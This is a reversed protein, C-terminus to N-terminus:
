AAKIAALAAAAVEDPTQTADIRIIRADEAALRAYQARVKELFEVKEYPATEGRSEARAVAVDAPVDFWLVMDPQAMHAHLQELWAHHDPVHGDLTVGQYARTSHMYRDCLVTEGALLHRRLEGQHHWRDALFLYTTVLPDGGISRRVAPGLHPTEEATCWADITAAVARM